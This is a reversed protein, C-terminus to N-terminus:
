HIVDPFLVVAFLFCFFNLTLIFTKEKKWTLEAHTSFKSPIWGPILHSRVEHLQLFFISTEHSSASHFNKKRCHLSLPNYCQHLILIALQIYNNLLAPVQSCKKIVSITHLLISLTCNQKHLYKFLFLHKHLMISGMNGRAWTDGLSKCKGRQGTLRRHSFTMHGHRWINLISLAPIIFSTMICNFACSTMQAFFVRQSRNDCFPRFLHQQRQLM